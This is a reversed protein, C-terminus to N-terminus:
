SRVASREITPLADADFWQFFELMNGDPDLVYLQLVGDGRPLPGGIITVSHARLRTEAAALDDVEFGLHHALGRAAGAGAEAFGAPATTDAELILHLEFGQGRFWAGGFTFSQPRAIEVLGLVGGYFARARELDRVVLASHDLKTIQM